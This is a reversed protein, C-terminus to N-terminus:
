APSVGFGGSNGFISSSGFQAVAEAVVAQRDAESTVDHRARIGRPRGARAARRRRAEGAEIQIDTVLVAADEDALRKATAKGIGSAAGTM